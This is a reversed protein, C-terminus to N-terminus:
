HAHPVLCIYWVTAGHRLSLLTYTGVPKGTDNRRLGLRGASPPVVALASASPACMAPQQLPSPIAGTTHPACIDDRITGDYFGYASLMAQAPAYGIDAHVSAM